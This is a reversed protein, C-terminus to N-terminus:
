ERAAIVFGETARTVEVPAVTALAQVWEDINDKSVAGSFHIEAASGALQIEEKTYRSIDAVVYRLPENRYVLWGERWRASENLAVREVKAATTVPTNELAEFTIQEGQALRLPEFEPETDLPVVSRTADSINVSGETVTVTVRGELARVNFETGVATIAGNLARVTFPRTPDKAVSFYAEGEELVLERADPKLDIALKSHAGLTVKSGDALTLERHEATRTVFEGSAIPSPNLWFGLALVLAAISAAALLHGNWWRGRGLRGGRRSPPLEFEKRPQLAPSGPRQARWQAVPMSGDYEADQADHAPKAIVAAPTRHWIEIIEEFAQRNEASAELWRLWAQVTDPSPDETTYIALFWEAATQPHTITETM